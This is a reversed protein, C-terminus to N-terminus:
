DFASHMFYSIPDCILVAKNQHIKTFGTSVLPYFVTVSAPFFSGSILDVLLKLM